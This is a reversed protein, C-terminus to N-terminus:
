AEAFFYYEGAVVIPIPGGGGGAGIVDCQARTGALGTVTTLTTVTSTVIGEDPGFYDARFIFGDGSSTISRATNTATISVIAVNLEPPPTLTWRFAVDVDSTAICTFIVTDDPCAM